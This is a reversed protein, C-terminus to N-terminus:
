PELEELLQQRECMAAYLGRRSVLEDHTGSEALRGDDLVLILDCDRVASMRHSIVISTRGRMFDRLEDLIERETHADVSSLADDLILLRPRRILARALATRQKQGGSLTVGREGIVQHLKGPFREADAAIRALRAARPVDDGGGFAINNSLTDSFIFPEAAVAGTARRLSDTAVDNLDRGDVFVTGRPVEYLKLLIQALASKGSGTRGVIGVKQGRQISFSVNELAPRRDEKYRFTLNRIDIGGVLEIAAEGSPAPAADFIDNLRGMCAVGRQAVAIVWGIAVMPWVLMFQYATFAAFQGETFHGGIIGKGGFYLTVAVALEIFLTMSAFMLARLRALSINASQYDRCAGAFRRDEADEQAFAKIVRAGTFNEQARTSVVGLQDQVKLSRTHVGGAAIFTVISILSLPVLCILALHWELWFMGALSFIFMLGTGSLAVVAFGIMLRVGELDNIFRSTIDGTPNSDFWKAPLKLLHRYLDSRMEFELDRSLGIITFRGWSILVGRVAAFLILAASFYLIVRGTSADPNKLADIAKEIFKPALAAASAALAVLTFGLLYRGRYRRLYPWLRRLHRM